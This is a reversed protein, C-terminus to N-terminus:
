TELTRLTGVGLNYVENLSELAYNLRLCFTAHKFPSDCSGLTTAVALGFVIGSQEDVVAAGNSGPLAFPKGSNTGHSESSTDSCEFTQVSNNQETSEVM